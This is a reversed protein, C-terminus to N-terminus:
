IVRKRHLERGRYEPRRLWGRRRLQPVDLTGTSDVGLFNGEVVNSGSETTTVGYGGNTNLGGNITLPTLFQNVILGRM